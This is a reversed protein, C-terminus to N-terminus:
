FRNVLVYKTYFNSLKTEDWEDGAIYSQLGEEELRKKLLRNQTLLSRLKLTMVYNEILCERIRRLMAAYDRWLHPTQAQMESKLRGLEEESEESLGYEILIQIGHANLLGKERLFQNMKEAAEHPIDVKLCTKERNEIEELARVIDKHRSQLPQEKPFSSREIRKM